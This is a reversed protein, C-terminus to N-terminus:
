LHAPLLCVQKFPLTQLLLCLGLVIKLIISLHLKPVLTLPFLIALHLFYPVQIPILHLLLDGTVLLSVTNSFASLFPLFSCGNIVVHIASHMYCELQVSHSTSLGVFGPQSLIVGCVKGITAASFPTSSDKAVSVSDIAYPYVQHDTKEHAVIKVSLKLASSLSVLHSPDCPIHAPSSALNFHHAAYVPVQQPLLIRLLHLILFHNQLFIFPIMMLMKLMKLLAISIMWFVMVAMQRMCVPSASM